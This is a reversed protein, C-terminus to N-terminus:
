FRRSITAEREKKEYVEDLFCITKDFQSTEESSYKGILSTVIMGIAIVM